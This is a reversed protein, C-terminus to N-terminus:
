FWSRSRENQKKELRRKYKSGKAELIFKDANKIAEEMKAKKGALLREHKHGKPMLIGKMFKKNEYKEEYFLKKSPPLLDHIGYRYALKFLDSMRRLSYKPDHYKGTAQNKNPLFPNADAATIVTPKSSYKVNPPYKKFFNRLQVPLLEFYHKMSAGSM